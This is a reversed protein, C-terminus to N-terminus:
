DNTTERKRLLVFLVGGAGVMMAVLPVIASVDGTEIITNDTATTTTAAPAATEQAVEQEDVPDLEPVDTVKNQAAMWTFLDTGASNSPDNNLTHIWSFHANYSVDELVGDHNYDEQYVLKPANNELVTTYQTYVINDKEYTFGGAIPTITEVGEGILDYIRTACASTAVVPDNDAQILWIKTRADKLTLLEEDTPTNGGRATAVDLAPCTIAAATFLDPYEIIMRTTMYGGASCGAVYVQNPDIGYQSIVENIEDYAMAMYGKSQANYWTDPAQFAMVYAGDFIDQAMDSAWAVTGRNGLMQAVNNKSNNYDGEGNGHFWVVLSKNELSATPQYFQYYIDDAVSTFKATEEDYVAGDWTYSASNPIVFPTGDKATADINENQVVHYELDVPYNRGASLYALTSAGVENEALELYIKGDDFSTATITRVADQYDGYSFDGPLWYAATSGTATVTFTSTTIENATINIQGCDIVVMNVNEGGDTVEAELTFNFSAPAAFVNAVSVFMAMVLAVFSLVIKSLIKM